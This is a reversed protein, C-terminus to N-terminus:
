MFALGEASATWLVNMHGVIGSPEASLVEGDRMEIVISRNCDLCSDEIRVAKGPFLYCVALAEFGCQAFWKQQGEVAIRHHTPIGSLPAFSAIYDTCAQLCVPYGVDVLEYLAKRGEEVSCGLEAALETYHPAQGREVMRQMTWHFAKDLVALEPM